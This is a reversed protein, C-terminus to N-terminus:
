EPVQITEYIESAGALIDLPIRFGIKKASELNVVVKIPSEFLQSIDRPKKGNFIQTMVRTYFKADEKFDSQNASMLIGHKVLDYRTQAFMPVKYKFLPKLLATISNKNLGSSDTMFMADIKSALQEYGEILEKEENKIGINENPRKYEVVEFGLEKSLALVDDVAAYSRGDLDDEYALGLRKFKIIDHFLRVQRESKKPDIWAHVHDYGSDEVSKIVGAKVANSASIVMIPTIHQNNAFDQGAWTGFALLLDIDKKKKLREFIAPKLMARTQDDWGCTWGAEPLFQLYDSKITQSLFTWLTRTESEDLSVPVAQPQIWGSAMLNLTMAKLIKQYNSYPGGEVFGIRWKKGQNTVPKVDSEVQSFAESGFLSLFFLIIVISRVLRKM